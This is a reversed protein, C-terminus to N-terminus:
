RSILVISANQKQAQALKGSRDLLIAQRLYKTQGMTPASRAFAESSTDIKRAQLDSNTAMAFHASAWLEVITLEEETLDTRGNGLHAEVLAHGADLAFGLDDPPNSERYQTLLNSVEFDGVRPFSM